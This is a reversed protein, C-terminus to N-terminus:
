FPLHLHITDVALVGSVSLLVVRNLTRTIGQVYAFSFLPLGTKILLNLPKRIFRASIRFPRILYLMIPLTISLLVARILM